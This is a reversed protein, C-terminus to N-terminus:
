PLMAGEDQLLLTANAILVGGAMWPESQRRELMFVSGAGAM